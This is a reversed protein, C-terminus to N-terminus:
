VCLFCTLIITDLDVLVSGPDSGEKHERRCLVIGGFFGINQDIVLSKNGRYNMNIPGHLM